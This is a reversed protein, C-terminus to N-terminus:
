PANKPLASTSILVVAPCNAMAACASLIVLGFRWKVYLSIRFYPRRRGQKCEPALVWIQKNGAWLPGQPIHQQWWAQEPFM